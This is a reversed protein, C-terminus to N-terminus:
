GEYVRVFSGCSRCTYTVQGDWWDRTVGGSGCTIDHHPYTHWDCAGVERVYECMAAYDDATKVYPAFGVPSSALIM